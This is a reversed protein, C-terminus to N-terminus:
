GAGHCGTRAPRWHLPARTELDFGCGPPLAQVQTADVEVTKAKSALPCGAGRRHLHDAVLVAALANAENLGARGYSRSQCCAILGPEVGHQRFRDSPPHQKPDANQRFQQHEPDPAAIPKAVATM